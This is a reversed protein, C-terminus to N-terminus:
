FAFDGGLAEYADLVNRLARKEASTITKDYRYQRGTYRLTAEKSSIIDLIMNYSSEVIGEDYWEWVSGGSHDTKLREIPVIIYSGTDTKVQYKQIFLWDEGEYQLRMRLWPKSNEKKGIYIHFSKRNNYKTTSKDYYWTTENMEDNNVRMKKTAEALRKREAEAKAAAEKEQVQQISDLSAVIREQLLQGEKWESSGPHRAQLSDLKARAEDLQWAARLNRAESLLRGAGYKLEELEAKLATNEALLKDYDEQPVRNCSCALLCIALSFLSIWKM